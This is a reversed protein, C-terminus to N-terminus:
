VWAGDRPRTKVFQLLGEVRLLLNGAANFNKGGFNFPIEGYAFEDDDGDEVAGDKEERVQDAAEGQREAEIEDADGTIAKAGLRALQDERLLETQVDSAAVDQQNIVDEIGTSCQMTHQSFHALQLGASDLGAHQQFFGRASSFLNAGIVDAKGNWAEENDNVSEIECLAVAVQRENSHQM